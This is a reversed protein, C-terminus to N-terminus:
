RAVIEGLSGVSEVKVSRAFGDEMMQRVDVQGQMLGSKRMEQAIEELEGAVPLYLDFRFRDPPNSFAYSVVSFDQGWYQCVLEEAERIHSQTWFGSKVAAATLAGVWDPHSQILDERVIMLNCIFKPWIDEADLLRRGVGSAIAKSAFPEGVFYGDIGGAALAAPMDPPCIEVTRIAEADLGHERLYRKLALLHGSYRIPVAVTKGTMDLLSKYPSDKKVVLTSEHRNGIYVVKLPVGQEHLAIALPAIIFAVQIHGSRFAEGMEAFSGFKIAQFRVESGKSAHDVLVAALNAVVPMYGMLVQKPSPREGNLYAHLFSILVLWSAVAVAIRVTISLRKPPGPIM